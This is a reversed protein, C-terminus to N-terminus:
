RTRLLHMPCFEQGLAVCHSGFLLEFVGKQFAWKKFLDFSKSRTVVDVCSMPVLLHEMVFTDIQGLM